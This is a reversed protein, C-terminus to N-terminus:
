KTIIDVRRNLKRGEKTANDYKPQSEGYGVAELRSAEVGNTVLWNMVSNARRESLGQNYADTGTADTHGNIAFAADPQQSLAMKVQKLVPVMEDTIQYKDFGFHLNFTIIEKAMVPAPAPAMPAPAPEDAVEEVLVDKAFQDAAVADSLSAADAPVSCSSIARIRDVIEQGAASDAYSVVHICLKTGYKSYLAQAQSVADAGINSAGDTFIILATSGNMGAIVPDLDMLGDGLPTTRNFIDFKTGITSIAGSMATKDYAGPQAVAEFPAFLFLGSNYNLDPVAQNFARLGAVAMDIKKTGMTAHQQAMSGSQDLFLIFNDVKPVIKAVSVSALCLTSLIAVTLAVLLLQKNKKM